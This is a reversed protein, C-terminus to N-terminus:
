TSQLGTDKQLELKLDPMIAASCAYSMWICSVAEEQLSTGRNPGDNSEVRAKHILGHM